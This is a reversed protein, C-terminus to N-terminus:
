VTWFQVVDMRLHQLVHRHPNVQCKFCEETTALSPFLGAVRAKAPITAIIRHGERLVAIPTLQAITDQLQGFNTCHTNHLMTGQFARWFCTRYTARRGALPVGSDDTVYISLGQRRSSFGDTNVHPQQTKGSERSALAGWTRLEQAGILFVQLARLPLQRSGGLTRSFAPFAALDHDFVQRNILHHVIMAEGFADLIRRPRLESCQERVLCCAGTSRKDRDVRCVRALITRAAAM